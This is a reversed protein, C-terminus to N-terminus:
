RWIQYTIIWLWRFFFRFEWSFWILYNFQILQKEQLRYDIYSFNYLPKVCCKIEYVSSFFMKINLGDLLMKICQHSCCLKWSDIDVFNLITLSQAVIEILHFHIYKYIHILCDFTMCVTRSFTFDESPTTAIISIYVIKM